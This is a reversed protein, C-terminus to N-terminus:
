GLPGVLFPTTTPQPSGGAPEDSIALAGADAVATDPSSILLVRGDDAPRFLDVSIPNGEKPVIWLQYTRDGAPPPMNSGALVLGLGEHWYAHVRPDQGELLSVGITEPASLINLVRLYTANPTSLEEYQIELEALRSALRQSRDYAFWAAILLVAATAWAIIPNWDSRPQPRPEGIAAILKQRVHDPPDAAPALYALQAAAELAREVGPTCLDCGRDLHAQIEEREAGELVGLAYAEYQEQLQRCEM